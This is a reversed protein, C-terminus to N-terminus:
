KKKAPVKTPTKKPDKCPKGDKGKGDKCDDAKCPKGDKGKGDKCEDKDKDKDDKKPKPVNPKGSGKWVAAKGEDVWSACRSIAGDAIDCEKYIGEHSVVARGSFPGDCDVVQGDSISCEQIGATTDVVAKGQYTEGCRIPQGSSIDCDTFTGTPQPNKSSKPPATPKAGAPAGADKGPAATLLVALLLFHM